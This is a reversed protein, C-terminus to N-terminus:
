GYKEEFRLTCSTGGGGGGENKLGTDGIRSGDRNMKAPHLLHEMGGVVVVHHHVQVRPPVHVRPVLKPALVLRRLDDVLEDVCKPVAM